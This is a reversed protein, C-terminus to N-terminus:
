RDGLDREAEKVATWVHTADELAARDIVVVNELVQPFRRMCSALERVSAGRTAALTLFRIATLVGDGTTANERFIVHGSQEGGVAAGTRLMGELGYRGGARAAVVEGGADGVGR